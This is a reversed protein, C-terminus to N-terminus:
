YVPVGENWSKPAPREDFMYFLEWEGTAEDTGKTVYGCSHYLHQARLNDKFTTLRIGDKGNARAEDIAHMVLARGVGGNQCGDRVAVAFIPVPASFFKFFYYGIMKEKEVAMYRKTDPDNLASQATLSFATDMDLSHPLFFYTTAPSLAACFEAFLGGDGVTFPRIKM